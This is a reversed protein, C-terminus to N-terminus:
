IVEVHHLAVLSADHMMPLAIDPICLLEFMTMEVVTFVRVCLYVSEQGLWGRGGPKVTLITRHIQVTPRSVSQALVFRPTPTAIQELVRQHHTFRFTFFFHM